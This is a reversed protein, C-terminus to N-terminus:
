NMVVLRGTCPNADTPSLGHHNAYGNLESERRAERTVLALVIFALWFAKNWHINGACAAVLLGWCAAEIAIGVYNHSSPKSCAARARKMQSWIAALFLALGIVGTEAWVQLYANHAARAYGRFVPAYGAFRDYAVPFNALGVGIVANHKVVEAAAILIDVRGTGRSHPTEELRQYFLNPLFFLPLAVILIPLLIRRHMGVRFLLVLLTASLAILTGRSMTLFISTGILALVGLMIAKKVLGGRSIVGALALSFPLLLGTSFDNPNASGEGFTLTARGSLRAGEGFEFVLLAAAVAGGAAALLLIRTLEGRNLRFSVAVLYFVFLFAVTSLRELGTRPEIAWLLSAATWLVFLGWWLTSPPPAQWRHNVLGYLLLVVGAFAGAIWSISHASNGVPLNDFPVAFAFLGLSAEVPVLIVLGLMALPVVLLLNQQAIGISLVVAAVVTAIGFLNVKKLLPQLNQRSPPQTSSVPRAAAGIINIDLRFQMLAM